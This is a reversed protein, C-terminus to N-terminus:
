SNSTVWITVVVANVLDVDQSSIRECHVLVLQSKLTKGDNVNGLFIGEKPTKCLEVQTVKRYEMTKRIM